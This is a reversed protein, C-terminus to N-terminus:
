ACWLACTPVAWMKDGFPVTHEGSYLVIGTFSSGAAMNAKFWKLHKFSESDIHTGAKVEIGVIANDAGEILFDVERQERDRYHSLSYKGAGIDILAALQTYVFTEILKGNLEGDLRVKDLSWNLCSAMLGTDAMFLKDKKGVRAYDTKTWPRVRDVLYLTEIANIYSELTGHTLSLPAGIASIDMFKSSWAALAEILKLLSDQRRIKAIDKLDREILADLYDRHWLQRERADGLRVAEPFGGRLARILYDDKTLSSVPMSRLDGSFMRELFRPHTREMEGECLPRLRIKRVRGALSESVKPLSQINASGTLIFRGPAQNEDVDKKVATLLAPARQVEDIIMLNDGHAVFGHPDDLASNLLTQDDLTRYVAGEGDKAVHRALTTKGCQRPGELLIVRRSTLANTIADSQWRPYTERM